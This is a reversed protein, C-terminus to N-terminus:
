PAEMMLHSAKLKDLVYLSLALVMLIQGLSTFALGHYISTVLVALVYGLIFLPMERHPLHWGLYLCYAFLSTAFAEVLLTPGALRFGSNMMSLSVSLVNLDKPARVGELINIQGSALAVAAIGLGAFLGIYTVLGIRNPSPKGKIYVLAPLIKLLEGHWARALVNNMFGARVSHDTSTLGNARLCMEELWSCLPGLVLGCCVLVLLLVQLGKGKADQLGNAFIWIFSGLFAAVCLFVAHLAWTSRSTAGGGGSLLPSVVALAVVLAFLREIRSSPLRRVDFSLLSERVMELSPDDFKIRGRQSSALEKFADWVGDIRSTEAATQKLQDRFDREADDQNTDTM